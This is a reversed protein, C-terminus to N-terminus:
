KILIKCDLPYTIRHKGDTVELYNDIISNLGLQNIVAQYHQAGKSWAQTIPPPTNPMIIEKTGFNYYCLIKGQGWCLSNVMFSLGM